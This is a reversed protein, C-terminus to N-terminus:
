KSKNKDRKVKEWAAQEIWQSFNLKPLTKEREDEIAAKVEDSLNVSTVAM